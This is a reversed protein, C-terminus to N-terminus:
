KTVKISSPNDLAPKLLAVAKSAEQDSIEVHARKCNDFCTGFITSKICINPTSFLQNPECGAATCLAQIRPLKTHHQLVPELAKKIIPHYHQMKIIKSKTLRDGDNNSDRKCKNSQNTSSSPSPPILPPLYLHPPVDGNFVPQITKICTLMHIFDDRLSGPSDPKPMLGAAFNRSQTHLVWMIGAITQLSMMRRAFDGYGELSEVMQIVVILLPSERGFLTMLLTCYRKLQMLLANFNPPTEAVRRCATVDKVTTTTAIDLAQSAENLKEIADESLDPVCYITLGKTASVLSSLGLEEEFDRKIIMTVVSSLVRLRAEKYVINEPQSLQLKVATKKDAATANKEALLKWLVPVADEEGASLGCQVMLRAHGSQSMGLENDPENSSTVTAATSTPTHNINAAANPAPNSPLARTSMEMFTKALKEMLSRTAVDDHQINPVPTPQKTPAQTPPTPQQTAQQKSTPAFHEPFLQQLRRAKWSNVLAPKSDLFVGPAIKTQPWASTPSVVQARVFSSLMADFLRYVGKITERLHFWRELLAVSDLHQDFADYVLFAPVPVVDTLLATKQIQSHKFWFPGSQNEKNGHFHFQKMSPIKVQHPTLVEEPLQHATPVAFLPDIEGDLVLVDDGLDNAMLGTLGCGAGLGYIVKVQRSRSPVAAIFPIIDNSQALTELKPAEDDNILEIITECQKVQADPPTKSAKLAVIETPKPINGDWFIPDYSTTVTSYEEEVEEEDSSIKNEDIEPPITIDEEDSVVEEEVVIEENALKKGDVEKKYKKNPKPSTNKAKGKSAPTTVTAPAPKPKSPNVPKPIPAPTTEKTTSAPAKPKPKTPPAKAHNDAKAKTAVSKPAATSATTTPM